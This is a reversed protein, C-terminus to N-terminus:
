EQQAASSEAAAAAKELLDRSEAREGVLVRVREFELRAQEHVARAAELALQYDTPDLKLLPQGAKVAEGTNVLRETIKGAVRFGLKSETRARIVGTYRSASDAVGRSAGVQVVRVVRPGSTDAKANGRDCGPLVVSGLLGLAILAGRRLRSGPPNISSTEMFLRVLNM